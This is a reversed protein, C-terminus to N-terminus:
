QKALPRRIMRRTVAPPDHGLPQEGGEFIFGTALYITVASAQDPNVDLLVETGPFGVDIWGLLTVLLARGIGRGRCSPHVWMGWLHHRANDPFAGAMGVLRGLPEEAVFTAERSGSGGRVAWDQWRADPYAAERSATSGFALPDARLAALRLERFAAWEDARLRRVRVESTV